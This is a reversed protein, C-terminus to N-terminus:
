ARPTSSPRTRTGTANAPRFDLLTFAGTILGPHHGAAYPVIRLSVNPQAALDALHRLQDTMVAPGGAPRHLLAENLALTVTLPARARTIRARRTMCDHVLRDAEAGALGTSTILTRAYVDTRLLAPVQGPAYGTLATATDELAEYISLNDPIAQGYPLWWGHARNHKALEALAQTLNPPADYAQCMAQVDHARLATQGTEIRWLKAESWELLEAALKTTLGAQNRLDRL